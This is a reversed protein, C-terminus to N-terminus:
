RQDSLDFSGNRLRAITPPCGPAEVNLIKVPIPPRAAPTM